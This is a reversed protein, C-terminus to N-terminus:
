RRRPGLGRWRTRRRPPGSHAAPRAEVPATTSSFTPVDASTLSGGVLVVQDFRTSAQTKHRHAPYPFWAPGHGTGAASCRGMTGPHPAGIASASFGRERQKAGHKACRSQGHEAWTARV